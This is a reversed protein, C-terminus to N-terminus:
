KKHSEKSFLLISPDNKIRESFVELNSMITTIKEKDTNIVETINKLYLFTSDANEIVDNIKKDNQALTSSITHIEETIDDINTIISNIVMNNNDLITNVNSVISSIDKIFNNIDSINIDKGIDGFSGITSEISVPEVGDVIDGQEIFGIGLTRVLPPNVLIYKEGLGFGVTQITFVTDLPLEMDDMTIIVKVRLSDNENITITDVYGIDISGGRYRVKGNARLDGTFNYDIYFEYAGSSLKLKGFVLVGCIFVAITFLFFIGLKVEKKM